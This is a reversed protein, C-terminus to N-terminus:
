GATGDSFRTWCRRLLVMFSSRMCCSCLRLRWRMKRPPVPAAMTMTTITTTTVTTVPPFFFGTADLVDDDVVEVVAKVEVDVAGGTDTGSIAAGAM